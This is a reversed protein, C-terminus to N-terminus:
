SGSGEPAQSPDLPVPVVDLHIYRMCTCISFLFNHEKHSKLIIKSSTLCEYPESSFFIFHASKCLRSERRMDEDM